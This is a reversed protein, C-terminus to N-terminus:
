AAPRAAMSPDSAMLLAHDTTAPADSMGILRAFRQGEYTAASLTRPALADGIVYVQRIRGVLQLDMAPAAIRSSVLVVADVARQENRGNKSVVVFRDGIESVAAGTTVTVGAKALRGAVYAAEGSAVLSRAAQGATTM